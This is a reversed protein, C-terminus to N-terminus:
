IVEKIKLACVYMVVSVTERALRDVVNVTEQALGDVVCTTRQSDMGV